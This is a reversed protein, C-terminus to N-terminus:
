WIDTVEMLSLLQDNKMNIGKSGFAREQSTRLVLGLCNRLPSKEKIELPKLYSRCFGFPETIFYSVPLKPSLDLHYLFFMWHYLFDNNSHGLPCPLPISCPLSCNPFVLSVTHSLFITSPDMPFCFSSDALRPLETPVAEHDPGMEKKGHIQSPLEVLPETFCSFPLALSIESLM